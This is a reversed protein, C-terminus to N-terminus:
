ITILHYRSFWNQNVKDVGINNNEIMVPEFNDITVVGLYNDPIVGTTNVNFRTLGDDTPEAIILNNSKNYLLVKNHQVTNDIIIQYRGGLQMTKEDFYELDYFLSLLNKHIVITNAGGMLTSKFIQASIRNIEVILQQNWDKQTLVGYTGSSQKYNWRLLWQARNILSSHSNSKTNRRILLIDYNNSM